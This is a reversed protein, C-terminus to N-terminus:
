DPTKVKFHITDGPAVSFQTSFGEVSGIAPDSLFSQRDWRTRPVVGDTRSNEAVISNAAPDPQAECVLILTLFATGTRAFGPVKPPRLWKMRLARRVALM